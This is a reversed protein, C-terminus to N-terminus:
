EKALPFSYEIGAEIGINWDNYEHHTSFVREAKM